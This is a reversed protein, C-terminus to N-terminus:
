RFCARISWAPSNSGMKRSYPAVRPAPTSPPHRAGRCASVSKVARHRGLLVFAHVKEQTSHGLAFRYPILGHGLHHLVQSPDPWGMCWVMGNSLARMIKPPKVVANSSLPQNHCALTGRRRPGDSSSFFGAMRRAKNLTM